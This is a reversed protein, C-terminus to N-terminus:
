SKEREVRWGKKGKRGTFFLSNSNFKFIDFCFDTGDMSINKLLRRHSFAGQM